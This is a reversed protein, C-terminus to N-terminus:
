PRMKPATQEKRVLEQNGRELDEIERSTKGDKKAIEIQIKEVLDVFKKSSKVHLVEQAEQIQIESEILGTANILVKGSSCWNFFNSLFYTVNGLFGTQDHLVTYRQAKLLSNKADELEHLFTSQAGTELQMYAPSNLKEVQTFLEQILTAVSKALSNRYTGQSLHDITHSDGTLANLDTIEACLKTTDFITSEIM